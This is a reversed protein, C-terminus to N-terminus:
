FDAPTDSVGTVYSLPPAIPWGHLKAVLQLYIWETQSLRISQGNVEHTLQMAGDECLEINLPGHKITTRIVEKGGL